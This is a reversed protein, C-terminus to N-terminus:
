LSLIFLVPIYVIENINSLSQNCTSISYQISLTLHVIENFHVAGTEKGKDLHRSSFKFNCM